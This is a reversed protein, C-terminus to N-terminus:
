VVPVEMQKVALKSFTLRNLPRKEKKRESKRENTREKRKRKKKKKM